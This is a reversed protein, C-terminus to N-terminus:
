CPVVVFDSKPSLRLLATVQTWMLIEGTIGSALDSMLFAAVNGVEERYMAGCHRMPRSTTCYRASAASAPPPWRKSRAQRFVTSAFGESGLGLRPIGSVPRWVPKKALGMVNYSPMARGRWSLQADAVGCRRTVASVLRPLRLSALCQYGPLPLLNGRFSDLFDGALAERPAFGISHVIGDFGEPWHNQLAAFMGAIEDSTVDCRIVTNSGFRPPWKWWETTCGTLLM